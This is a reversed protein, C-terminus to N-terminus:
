GRLAARVIALAEDPSLGLSRTRTAYETAAAQAQREAADGTASVFTGNRGRTEIVEDRELEKYSRAVTNVALGLEAALGRVTPMRTGPVLEGSAVAAIVQQRLQEFPPAASHADIRIDMGAVKPKSSISHASQLADDTMLIEQFRVSTDPRHSM